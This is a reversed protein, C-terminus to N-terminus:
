DCAPLFNSTFVPVLLQEIQFINMCSGKFTLSYIIFIIVTNHQQAEPMLFDAMILSHQIAVFCDIM